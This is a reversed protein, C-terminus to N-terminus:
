NQYEEEGAKLNYIPKLIQEIYITDKLADIIEQPDKYAGPAEDLTQQSVSSTWVGSQKMEEKYDELSLEKKAKSRSMKRGAGHPASYNWEKNGLGRGLIVGSKMTLPILVSTEKTADIAGKRIIGQTLAIYNHISEYVYQEEFKADFFRLIISAIIRRNVGAYKQAVDMHELYLKADDGELHALHRPVSLIANKKLEKIADEIEKGKKTRKIEEVRKSVDKKSIKDYALKQHFNAMKLGFNRSGTHIVLWLKGNEEKDVEIFHNGGGLTGLSNMVYSLKQGTIIAVEEIACYWYYFKYYFYMRCLDAMEKRPFPTQRVNFGMPIVGRIYADFIDAKKRLDVESIPLPYALVGCGVDVGTVNPIIKDTVTATFGIPVGKGAHVGPMIAINSGIFAACNTFEQIQAYAEAEIGTDTYVRAKNYKGVIEFM